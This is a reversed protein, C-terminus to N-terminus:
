LIKKESVMFYILSAIKLDLLASPVYTNGYIDFSLKLDKKWVSIM